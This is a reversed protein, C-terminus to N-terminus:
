AYYQNLFACVYGYRLSVRCIHCRHHVTRVYVYNVSVNECVYLHFVTCIGYMHFMTKVYFTSQLCVFTDM